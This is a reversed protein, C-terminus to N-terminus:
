KNKKSKRKEIKKISFFLCTKENNVQCGYTLFRPWTTGINGRCDSTLVRNQSFNWRQRIEKYQRTTILSIVEVFLSNFQNIPNRLGTSRINWRIYRFKDCNLQVRCQYRMLTSSHIQPSTPNTTEFSAIVWRWIGCSSRVRFIFILSITTIPQTLATYSPLTTLKQRSSTPEFADGHYNPWGSFIKELELTNFFHM